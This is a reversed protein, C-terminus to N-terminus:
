IFLFFFFSKMNKKYINNYLYINYILLKYNIKKLRLFNNVLNINKLNKLFLLKLNFFILFKNKYINFNNIFFKVKKLLKLLFCVKIKLFYFNNNYNILINKKNIYIKIKLIILKLFFIIIGIINICIFYIYYLQIYKLCFYNFKNMHKQTKNLFILNNIQCFNSFIYYNINKNFINEIFFILFNENGGPKQINSNNLYM